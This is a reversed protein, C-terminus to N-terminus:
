MEGLPIKMVSLKALCTGDEPGGSSYGVLMSQDEAFFIAPYCYGYDERSEIIRCDSWTAGDDRSVAWVLPTRGMTHRPAGRGNYNPIPNWVAYLYGTHPDRKISLPSDPATFRSPQAATWHEGGDMSFYEYQVMHDTRSYGWLVGNEKEVVGNEQLGTKTNTFPAYITDSAERWTDGDDDSLLFFAQGRIDFFPRCEAYHQLNGRHFTCPLVLRGTKTRIVRDNNLVYYAQRDPLTCETIRYFTNGDDNSRALMHHMTDGRVVFFMGFDGNKMRMLTVSMINRVDFQKASFLVRPESWTEGEDYSTVAVIESDADDRTSGFFQSYAFCIGGDNLRLFAGESRRRIEQDPSMTLVLHQNM